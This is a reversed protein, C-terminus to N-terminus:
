MEWAWFYLYGGQLVAGSSYGVHGGTELEQAHGLTPQNFKDPWFQAPCRADSASFHQPTREGEEFRNHVFKRAEAETLSVKMCMNFDKFGSRYIDFSSFLYRSPLSWRMPDIQVLGIVSIVAVSGVAVWWKRAM